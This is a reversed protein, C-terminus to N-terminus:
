GGLPLLVNSKSRHVNAGGGAPVVFINPLLLKIAWFGEVEKIGGGCGM